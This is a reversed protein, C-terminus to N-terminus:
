ETRNLRDMAVIWIASTFVFAAFWIMVVLHSEDPLGRTIAAFGMLIGMPLTLPVSLTALIAPVWSRPCLMSWALAALCGVLGLIVCGISAFTLIHFPHM